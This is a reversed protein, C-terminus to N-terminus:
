PASQPSFPRNGPGPQPAQSNGHEEATGIMPPQTGNTRAPTRHAAHPAPRQAVRGPRPLHLWKILLLAILASWIQIRLANETTGLFTKVRLNQKLTKFFVEIAWREKYLDALTTAGFGLHNSLVVIERANKDDWVVVRRLRHPCRERALPGSLEVEEDSVINRHLPVRRTEVVEYAADSKMRTVFFVGAETWRGFQGYDNYARDMLVISGPNVRLTPLVKADHERAESILVYSPMYDDHDLVTHVKM